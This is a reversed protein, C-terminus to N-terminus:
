NLVFAWVFFAMAIALAVARSIGIAKLVTLGAQGEETYNSRSSVNLQTFILHRGRWPASHSPIDTRFRTLKQALVFEVVMLAIWVLVAIGFGLIDGRM